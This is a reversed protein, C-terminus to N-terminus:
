RRRRYRPRPKMGNEWGPALYKVYRWSGFENQERADEYVLAGKPPQLQAQDDPVPFTEIEPHKCNRTYSWSRLGPRERAEKCLYRAVGEFSHERDLKIRRIELSSGWPWLRRLEEYDEGVNNLILHHHWRGEGFANETNFIMVPEPRGAAKRAAKLDARFRKLKATAATRSRPLSDEDYTLTVMLDGPWFNAAIMLELKQYSHKLNMRQQAESSLKRKGERTRPSDHGNGRPYVAELVLAGAQIIKKTKM